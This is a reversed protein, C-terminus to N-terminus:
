SGKSVRAKGGTLSKRLVQIVLVVTFFLFAYVLGTAASAIAYGMGKLNPNTFALFGLIFGWIASIGASRLPLIEKKM